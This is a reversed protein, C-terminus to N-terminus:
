FFLFHRLLFFLFSFLRRLHGLSRSGSERFIGLSSSSSEIICRLILSLMLSSSVELSDLAMLVM